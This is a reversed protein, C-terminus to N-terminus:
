FGIKLSEGAVAVGQSRTIVLKQEPSFGITEGDHLVVDDTVIYGCINLLLDVVEGVSAKSDLIEIEDFGLNSMGCTYASVGGKQGGYLGFWVLNMIPFLNDRMMAACDLYFEPQYVTDNAYVGLAGEMKCCTAVTKVLLEGAEKVPLERGLVAVMLHAKHQKVVDVAERWRYNNQAHYEAEGNPVPAPMLSVAILAGKYTLIVMHQNDEEGEVKDEESTEDVIGWDINLLKLFAEKDWADKKLLVFNHFTGPNEKHEEAKKAQEMIFARVHEVLAIADEKATAEKYEQMESFTHGCNQLDDGEYGGAVGLMWKSLLGKKYKFIYYHMDHLDFEGACEIKSPAKGLEAPHALWDVMAEKAANMQAQNM